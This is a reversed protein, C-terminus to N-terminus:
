EKGSGRSGTEKKVRGCKREGRGPGELRDEDRELRGGVRVGEEM